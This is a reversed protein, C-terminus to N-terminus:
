KTGKQRSHYPHLQSHTIHFPTIDNPYPIHIHAPTVSISTFHPYPKIFYPTPKSIPPAICKLMWLFIFSTITKKELSFM